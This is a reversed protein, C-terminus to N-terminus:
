LPYSEFIYFLSPNYPEVYPRIPYVRVELQAQAQSPILDQRCPVSQLTHDQAM